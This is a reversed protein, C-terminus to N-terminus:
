WPIYDVQSFFREFGKDSDLDECFEAVNLFM